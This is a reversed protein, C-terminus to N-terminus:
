KDFSPLSEESFYTCVHTVFVKYVYQGAHEAIKRCIIAYIADVDLLIEGFPFFSTGQAFYHHYRKM